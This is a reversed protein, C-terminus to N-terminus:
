AEAKRGMVCIWGRKREERIEIDTYEAKACLERHETVSMCGKGLLKVLADHARANGGYKYAEAIVLLTGGPKLVRRIEKMDNVLDPWYYQTEIATVLDFMSDCFPLASVSARVVAVRGTAVLEANKATSEAVSGAAYDVGYVKRNTMTALKQITRGGGCGVDLVTFDKGVKLRQLGWDTLASHSKNMMWLFPRGLWRSPKRVQRMLCFALTLGVIIRLGSWLALPLVFMVFNMTCDPPYMFTDQHLGKTLAVCRCDWHFFPLM